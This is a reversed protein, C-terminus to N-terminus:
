KRKISPARDFIDKKLSIPKLSFSVLLNGLQESYSKQLFEPTSLSDQRCLAMSLDSVLELEKESGDTFYTLIDHVHVLIGGINQDKLIVNSDRVLM